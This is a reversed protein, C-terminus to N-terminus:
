QNIPSLSQLQISARNINKVNKTKTSELMFSEARTNIKIRQNKIPSFTAGNHIPAESVNKTILRLKLQYKILPSPSNPLNPMDGRKDIEILFKSGM